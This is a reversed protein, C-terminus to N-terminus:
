RELTIEVNETEGRSVDLEVRRERYGPRSVILTHHGAAVSVGGASDLESARGIFRDDLYVAADDPRIELVIRANGQEGADRGRWEDRPLEQRDVDADRRPRDADEAEEEDDYRDRRPERYGRRDEAYMEDEDDGTVEVSVNSRKGWFRRVGGRVEPTDYSGYRPAGSIRPLKEGVDVKVGPRADIDITRSTFGELRFELRYHGRRLYLYDPFGDFDDATGIYQGDLYVRASEPSVDTDVVAWNSAGYGYGYRGYYGRRYPGYGYGYWYPDSWYPGYGWGFGWYSPRVVIVRRGHGRHGGGHGRHVAGSGRHGRPAATLPAAMAVALVALWLGLTLRKMFMGGASFLAFGPGRHFGPTKRVLEVNRLLDRSEFRAKPGRASRPFPCKTM